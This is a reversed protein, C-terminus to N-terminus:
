RDDGAEKLAARSANESNAFPSHARKDDTHAPLVGAGVEHDGERDVAALFKADDINLTLARRDATM